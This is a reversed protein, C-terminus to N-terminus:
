IPNTGYKNDVSWSVFAEVAEFETLGLKDYIKATARNRDEARVWFERKDTGPFAPVDKQSQHKFISMRKRMLEHPSMPVAMEIREPEWEQWAGRYLWVQCDRMWSEDKLREIAALIAKLCVRHTGHPDSLDGAAFIIEPKVSVLFDQMIKIDEEGLPKKKVAGTEYFPLDLFHIRSPHVGAYRAGARAETQRILGKILQIERSDPQAPEKTSIFNEVSDQIAQAKAKAQQDFGFLKAFENAFNAFRKADDDWVAINGSTQYAVHVQHGQDCLKIFTGGMSIVDDDPHPSFVIVRKPIPMPTVSQTDWNDNQVQIPLPGLGIGAGGPSKPPSQIPRGGPWGSITSQLYRFVKLNLNPCPGYAKLLSALNNDSYEDEELKLIPKNLKLSLWICAKRALLPTWKIQVPANTGHIVWPCKQRTLEGAAADDVVLSCNTHKQFISSPVASVVEGETTKQVIAAKGESFAMLLVRKASMMTTIGMTLAQHPVHEVGFFDSAADIRTNQELDVLRSKSAVPAGAENFGIRKGIPLLLLDIGGAKAIAEEYQECHSEVQASQVECNLFNINSAPIDLQQFLNEQMFRYYSQISQKSIPYYEDINFTIVNKFSVKGQKHLSILLDYVGTPTSGASLGLVAPRGAKNANEIVTIIENAIYQNAHEPYKYIYTPLKERSRFDKTCELLGTSSVTCVGSTQVVPNVSQSM